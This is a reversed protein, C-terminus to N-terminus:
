DEAVSAACADTLALFAGDIAGAHQVFTLFLGHANLETYYQVGSLGNGAAYVARLFPRGGLEAPGASEVTYGGRAIVGALSMALADLEEGSLGALSGRASDTLALNLNANGDPAFAQLTFGNAALFGAVDEPTLGALLPDGPEMRATFVWWEAPLSVSFGGEPVPVPAFAAEEGLAPLLAAFALLLATLLPLLKKM